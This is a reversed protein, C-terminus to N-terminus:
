GIIRSCTEALKLRSPLRGHRAVVAVRDGEVLLILSENAECVRAATRAIASLVIQLDASRDRTANPATM